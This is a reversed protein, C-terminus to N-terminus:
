KALTYYTNRGQGKREIVGNDVLQRLLERTRSEKINLLIEVQKSKISSNEQLYEFLTKEQENYESPVRRNESPKGVTDSSKDNTVTRLRETTKLYDQEFPFCIELFNDSVKFIDRSYANLIRHVGSGLQEVLDLDRFIRMLERNRPMSRGAFFEEESLGQVLGGYSTISLRDAYIEVVPPVEKTYDNHVIANILAERLATKNIMDRQLRQASGTIKTFTKNEVELKDLVRHTAKILSCYGYEKNEILDCKDTGAYKAVKISISNVDALLYAVYNLKEDPTFLDLNNLFSDNLTYGREQYYIKLQEFSLKGTNHAVINRLSDRTRSAYMSDIMGPSMQQVGSGIRMFCGAPSLGYKKIYYPKETGRSVVIHIITKGEIQEPFVDFFGLCTPLINNKIRDSIALQIKDVDEVGVVSGDDGVGIYIDGGKPSNLFAVVEKELKDNLELKFETKDDEHTFRNTL